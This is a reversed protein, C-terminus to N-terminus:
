GRPSKRNPRAETPGATVWLRSSQFHRRFFPEPAVGKSGTGGGSGAEGEGAGPGPSVDMSAGAAAGGRQTVTVPSPCHLPPSGPLQDQKLFVSSDGATVTLWMAEGRWARVLRM